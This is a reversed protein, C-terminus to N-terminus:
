LNIYIYAVESRRDGAGALAKSIEEMARDAATQAVRLDKESQVANTKLDFVVEAASDLKFLGAQLNSLDKKIDARKSTHLNYWMSLFAIYDKPTAGRALCSDHIALVMDTLAEGGGEKRDERDDEDDGGKGEGGKSEEQQHEERGMVLDKIGEMLYPIAKLTNTRWEGIWMVSCQAYLAPNSECRYLFLPHTPDMSLVIHLYKKVRSVFFEYPTRFTGGEERMLQRLPSLLPELEEHTYMGPVEGASLLSNIIELIAECTIQFDEIMLVAHEGKVGATLLAVKVDGLFQKVGYERPIAPTYFEYGLMYSAITVANRRGVGSRYIHINYLICIFIYLILIYIYM